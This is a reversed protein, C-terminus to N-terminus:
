CFPPHCLFCRIHVSELFSVGDPPDYRGSPTISYSFGVQELDSFLGGGMFRIKLLNCINNSIFGMVTQLLNTMIRRMSLCVQEGASSMYPSYTKQKSKGAFTLSKNQNSPIKPLSIGMFFSSDSCLLGMSSIFLGMFEGQPFRCSLSDFLVFASPNNLMKQMKPQM